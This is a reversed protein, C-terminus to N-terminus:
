LKRPITYGKDSLFGLSQCEIELQFTFLLVKGMCSCMGLYSINHSYGWGM